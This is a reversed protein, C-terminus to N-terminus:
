KIEHVPTYKNTQKNTKGECYTKNRMEFSRQRDITKAQKNTQTQNRIETHTNTQREM